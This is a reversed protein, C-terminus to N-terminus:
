SLFETHFLLSFSRQSWSFENLFPLGSCGSGIVGLFPAQLPPQSLFLEKPPRALQVLEGLRSPSPKIVCVNESESQYTVIRHLAPNLSEYARSVKQNKLLLNKESLKNRENQSM